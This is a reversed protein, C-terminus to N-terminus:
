GRAPSEFFGFGLVSWWLFFGFVAARRAFNKRQLAQM